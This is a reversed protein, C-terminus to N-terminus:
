GCNTRSDATRIACAAAYGPRAPVDTLTWGPVAAPASGAGVHTVSLDEGLGIGVGKLYAEKRAWCRVVAAPRAAHPLAALEAREAPHFLAGMEAATGADPTAEVDVGVPTDAFALLVADRSHSLSFHPAGAAVAPRGHPEGCGPCPERTLRVDAPDRDLYAGLLQRLAVHAVRYRDRDSDRLFALCRALETGDLVAQRAVARDRYEGVRLSWLRPGAGPVWPEPLPDRGLVAPPTM